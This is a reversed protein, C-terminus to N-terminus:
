YSTVHGNDLFMDGAFVSHIFGDSTKLLLRGDEAIDVFEGHMQTNNPFRISIPKGIGIAAIRWAAIIPELGHKKWRKLWVSFKNAIM